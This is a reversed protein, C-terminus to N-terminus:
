NGSLSNKNNSRIVPKIKTCLFNVMYNADKLIEETSISLNIIDKLDKLVDSRTGM